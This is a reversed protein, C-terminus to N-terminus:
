VQSHLFGHFSTLVQVDCSPCNQEVPPKIGSSSIFRLRAHRADDWSGAHSLFQPTVDHGAYIIGAIGSVVAPGVSGSVEAM